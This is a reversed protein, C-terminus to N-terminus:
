NFNDLFHLDTLIVYKHSIVIRLIYFLKMSIIQLVIFLKRYYDYDYNNIM